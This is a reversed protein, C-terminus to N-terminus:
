LWNIFYAIKIAITFMILAVLADLIRWSSPSKMIPSLFKAGYGLSFFFIFSALCAGLGFAIKDESLFQQSISGILILTDLYVHPNFFTLFAVISLSQFLGKSKSTEIEIVRDSKFISNIRLVGYGILWIVSFGFLWNSVQMIFNNLVFSMGVIGITILLADSLACFLAIFFVHQGLMGQRLVFTNQAGIALILSFGLFFGTFFASIL